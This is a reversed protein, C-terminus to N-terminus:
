KQKFYGDIIMQTFTEKDYKEKESKIKRFYCMIDDKTMNKTDRAVCNLFITFLKIKRDLIKKEIEIQKIKKRDM